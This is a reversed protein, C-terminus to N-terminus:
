YNNFILSLKVNPLTDNSQAGGSDSDDSSTSGKLNQIKQILKDFSKVAVTKTLDRGCRCKPYKLQLRQM